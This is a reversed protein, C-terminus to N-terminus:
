PELFVSGGRPWKLKEQDRSSSVTHAFMCNIENIKLKIMPTDHPWTGGPAELLWKLEQVRIMEKEYSAVYGSGRAVAVWIEMM